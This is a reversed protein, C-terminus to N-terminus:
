ILVKGLLANIVRVTVLHALMDSLWWSDVCLVQVNIYLEKLLLLKSM